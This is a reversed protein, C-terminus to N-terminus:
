VMDRRLTRQGTWDLSEHVVFCAVSSTALLILLISLLNLRSVLSWRKAM